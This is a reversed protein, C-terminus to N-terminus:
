IHILSLDYAVARAEPVSERDLKIMPNGVRWAPGQVQPSMVHWQAALGSPLLSLLALLLPLRLSPFMVMFCPLWSKAKFLGGVPCETPIINTMTMPFSHPEMHFVVRGSDRMPRAKQM